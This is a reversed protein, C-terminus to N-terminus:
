SASGPHVTGPGLTRLLRGTVERLVAPDVGAAGVLSGFADELRATGKDVLAAGQETLAVARRNGGGPTVGISLHGAAALSTATRSVTPETVGLEGALARQTLPGTRRLTLLLLFRPYSLDLDARLIRDANRDLRAVLVHLDCATGSSPDTPADVGLL